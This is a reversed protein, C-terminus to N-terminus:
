SGGILKNFKASAGSEPAVIVNRRVTVKEGIELSLQSIYGEIRQLQDKSQPPNTLGSIHITRIDNEARIRDIQKEMMWFRRSPM